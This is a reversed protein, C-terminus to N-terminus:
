NNKCPNQWSLPPQKVLSATFKPSISSDTIQEALSPQLKWKKKGTCVPYTLSDASLMHAGSAYCSGARPHQKSSIGKVDSSGM